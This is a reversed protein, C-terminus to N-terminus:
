RRALNPAPRLSIIFAHLTTVGDDNETRKQQRARVRGRRDTRVVDSVRWRRRKTSFVAFRGFGHMRWVAFSHRCRKADYARRTRDAINRRGGHGARHFWRASVMRPELNFLRARVDSQSDGGRNWSLTSKRRGARTPVTLHARSYM